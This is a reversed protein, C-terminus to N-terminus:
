CLHVYVLADHTFTSDLRGTDAQERAPVSAQQHTLSDVGNHIAEPEDQVSSPNRFFTQFRETM